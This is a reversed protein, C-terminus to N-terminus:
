KFGDIVVGRTQLAEKFWTDLERNVFLDNLWLDWFPKIKVAIWLSSSPDANRNLINALDERVDNPNSYKSGHLFKDRNFTMSEWNQFLERTIAPMSKVIAGLEWSNFFEGTALGSGDFYIKNMPAHELYTDTWIHDRLSDLCKDSVESIVDSILAEMM